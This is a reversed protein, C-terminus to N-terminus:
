FTFAKVGCYNEIELMEPTFSFIGNVPIQKYRGLISLCQRGIEDAWIWGNEGDSLGLNGWCYFGRIRGGVYCHCKVM